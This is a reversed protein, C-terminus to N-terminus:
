SFPSVRKSQRASRTVLGARIHIENGGFKKLFTSLHDGTSSLNTTGAKLLASGRLAAPTAEIFAPRCRNKLNAM